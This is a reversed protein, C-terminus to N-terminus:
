LTVQVYGNDADFRYIHFGRNSEGNQYLFLQKTYDTFNVQQMAKLIMQKRNASQSYSSCMTTYNTGCLQQLTSDIALAASFVANIVYLVYRDQQYSPANVVGLSFSTCQPSPTPTYCSFMTLYYENFWPDVHYNNPTKTTLYGDFDTVDATEVGLTIVNVSRLLAGNVNAAWSDSGIFSFTTSALTSNSSVAQMFPKIHETVLFTIVLTANPAQFLMNVAAMVEGSSLTEDATVKVSQAVCVGMATAYKIFTASAGSGYNGSYVVQVTLLYM